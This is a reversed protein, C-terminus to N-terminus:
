WFISYSYNLKCKILIFVTIIDVKLAGQSVYQMIQQIYSGSCTVIIPALRLVYILIFQAITHVTHGHRSIYTSCPEISM